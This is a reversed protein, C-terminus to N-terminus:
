TRRLFKIILPIVRGHADKQVFQSADEFEHVETRIFRDKGLMLLGAKPASFISMRQVQPRTLLFLRVRV